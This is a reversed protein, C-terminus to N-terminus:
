LAVGRISLRGLLNYVSASCWRKGTATPIGRADLERAINYNGTVGSALIEAVIPALEVARADAAAAVVKGGIRARRALSERENHGSRIKLRRRNDWVSAQSWPKGTLTLLGRATLVAAAEEATLHATEAIVARVEADSPRGKPRIELRNRFYHLSSKKWPKGSPTLLGRANLERAAEALAIGATEGIMARLEDGM